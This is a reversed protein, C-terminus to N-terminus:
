KGMIRINLPHVFLELSQRGLSDFEAEGTEESSSTFNEVDFGLEFVEILLLLDQHDHHSRRRTPLGKERGFQVQERFKESEVVVRYLTLGFHLLHELLLDLFSVIHEQVVGIGRGFFPLEVDFQGFFVVVLHVTEVEVVGYVEGHM